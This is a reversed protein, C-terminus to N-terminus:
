VYPYVGGLLHYTADKSSMPEVQVMESDEAGYDSWGEHESSSSSMRQEVM